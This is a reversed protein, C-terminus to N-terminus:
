LTHNLKQLVAMLRTFGRRVDSRGSGTEDGALAIRISSEDLVAQTAIRTAIRRAQDVPDLRLVVPDSVAARAIVLRRVGTLWYRLGEDQDARWVALGMAQLHDFLSRQAAPQPPTTPGFRPVISVLWLVLLCLASALIRWGDSGLWQWWTPYAYRQQMVIPGDPNVLNVIAWFLAANDSQGLNRNDILSDLSQVVTVAGRARTLQLIYVSTEGQLQWQATGRTAALTFFSYDLTAYLDHAFGAVHAPGVRESRPLHRGPATRVSLPLTKNKTLAVGFAKLLSTSGITQTDLILHGGAEVWHQLSAIRAENLVIGQGPGHGLILVGNRAMKDLDSATSGKDPTRGMAALYQEAGYWRDNQVEDSQETVRTEVQPRMLAAFLIFGALLAASGWLTYRAVLGKM